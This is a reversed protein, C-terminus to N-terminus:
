SNLRDYFLIQKGKLKIGGFVILVTLFSFINFQLIKDFIYIEILVDFVFDQGFGGFAPAYKVPIHLLNKRSLNRLLHKVCISISYFQYNERLM